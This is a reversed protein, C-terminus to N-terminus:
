FCLLRLLYSLVFFTTKYLQLRTSSDKNSMVSFESSSLTIIVQIQCFDVWTALKLLEIDWHIQQSEHELCSTINYVQGVAVLLLKSIFIAVLAASPSLTAGSVSSSM